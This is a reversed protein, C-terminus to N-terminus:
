KILLIYPTSPYTISKQMRFPVKVRRITFRQLFPSLYSLANINKNQNSTNPSNQHLTGIWLPNNLNDINYNSKWLSLELVTNENPIKYSMMLIAQKNDLLQAFLPLKIDSSNKNLLLSLKTLFSENHLKWGNQDLISELAELDGIYQINLMSSRKGIRNYQYLPLIFNTQDWWTRENLIFESHTPAHKYVSTNFNFYISLCTASVVASIFIILIKQGEVKNQINIPKIRYLLWHLFCVTSGLTYATLINTFSSDGLYILGLGSLGLLTLILSRFTNTFLTYQANIFFLIFVYLNTGLALTIPWTALASYSLLPDEPVPQQNFYFLVLSIGLTLLCSSTLYVWFKWKKYYLEKVSFFVYLTILTITSTFQICIIFFAKLLSTHISQALLFIPVDVLHQWTSLYSLLILISLTIFSLPILILLGATAYHNTENIPTLANYFKFLGPHKKLNLWCSNLNNRLFGNIKILILKLLSSFLWIGVLLLMIFLFLHSAAEASLENGAAGILVGPMVYLIAWGIASLVNAVLFRWHKMHVIGAIIPIISRLPGIFRGFLVSKGGHKSFFDKGYNLLNPYKKFPWIETLRDSYVYGLFYSLSDGCIAGLTAALLTLDIRMIGSGALIGIATMTISGPVLSGIIALSETLSVIFAIFLSWHPNIHLWNTLPQIYDVFLNM